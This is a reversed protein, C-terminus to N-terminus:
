FRLRERFISSLSPYTSVSFLFDFNAFNSSYDFLCIKFVTESYKEKKLFKYNQTSKAFNFVLNRM